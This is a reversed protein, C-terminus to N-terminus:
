HSFKLSQLEKIFKSFILCKELVNAFINGVISLDQLFNINSELKQILSFMEPLLMSCICVLFNGTNRWGNQRYHIRLVNDHGSDKPNSFM